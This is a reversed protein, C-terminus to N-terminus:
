CSSVVERAVVDAVAAPVFVEKGVRLLRDYRQASVAVEERREPAVGRWFALANQSSHQSVVSNRNAPARNKNKFNDERRAVGADGGPRKLVYRKVAAFAHQVSLARHGELKAYIFRQGNVRFSYFLVVRKVTEGSLNERCRLRLPPRLGLERQKTLAMVDLLDASCNARSACVRRRGLAARTMFVDHTKSFPRASSARTMKLLLSEVAPSDGVEIVFAGRTFCAGGRELREHLRSFFERACTAM